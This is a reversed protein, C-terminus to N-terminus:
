SEAPMATTVDLPASRTCRRAPLSPTSSSDSGFRSAPVTPIPWVRHAVWPAGVSPLACGCTSADPRTAITCLPIMSFAASSRRSSSAAPTSSALSVSESVIACRTARASPGSTGSSSATRLTSIRISPM